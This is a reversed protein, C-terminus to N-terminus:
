AGHKRQGAMLDPDDGELRKYVATTMGTLHYTIKYKCSCKVVTSRITLPSVERHTQFWPFSLNKHTKYVRVTIIPTM